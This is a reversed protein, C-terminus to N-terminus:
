RIKTRVKRALRDFNWQVAPGILSGLRVLAGMEWGPAISFRGRDIGKVIVKAVADASWMAASATIAKTEVPKTLNEATLQPTDTDPPYVISVGVGDAAIEGRLSEALGRLAFKTPSYSTYGFIGILGAGSSVLVVRGQGRSRMAPVAAQLVHLTGFYNVDMHMRFNDLNLDAFYGPQAIGASTVVVDLPGLGAIANKVAAKTGEADSVDVSLVETRGGASGRLADVEGLVTALRDAGRAMLTLNAGRAAYIRAVALGIGSSGGTILVHLQVVM